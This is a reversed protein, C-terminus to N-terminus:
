AVPPALRLVGEECCLLGDDVLKEVLERAWRAPSLTIRCLRATLDFIPTQLLWAEFESRVHSQHEMMHFMVLARAAHQAHRAPDKEFGQLRRRSAALAAPVDDFVAGHGPIV